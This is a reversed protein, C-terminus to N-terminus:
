PSSRGVSSRAESGAERHEEEEREQAALHRRFLLRSGRRDREGRLGSERVDLDVVVREHGYLIVVDGPHLAASGKPAGVYRGDVREIGLVLVGEQPLDLDALTRDALWDEDSVKLEAVVWGGALRLLGEYDRVQLDTSRRLVREIVVSMWRDVRDSLTFIWLLGLGALLLVARKLGALGSGVSTFSLLLSAMATVLGASGLLMLLRIIRRRVPHSVVSEAERTTFGTGTLASRAQFRATERSMGTLTLAVTAVRTVLLSLTVIILLTVVSLM